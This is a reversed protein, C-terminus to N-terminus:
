VLVHILQSKGCRCCQKWAVVVALKPKVTLLSEQHVDWDHKFWCKWHMLIM